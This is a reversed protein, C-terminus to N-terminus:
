PMRVPNGRRWVRVVRTLANYDHLADGHFAVLDAVAGPQLVGSNELGLIEAATVTAAAIVEAPNMGAAILAQVEVPDIGPRPGDNGLDTGYVARGGADLFRRLGQIALERSSRPFIGLTPVVVMNADVMRAITEMPLVDPGLLMHALEDVGARLAKDLERLGFVHATVRLACAHAAGVIAKLLSTELAPGAPPNLAVKIVCAGAEAMDEVASAADHETEIELATGHPAWAARAPYGGPATLIPGAALVTPGDFDPERSRSALEFIRAAPWGLDRVTTVGGAVVDHPRAFGIHVHADIFGPALTLGVGDMVEAGEPVSVQRRPGVTEVHEDEIVVTADHLPRLDRGVLATVGVIALRVPPM